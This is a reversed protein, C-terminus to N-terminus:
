APGGRPARPLPRRAGARRRRRARELVLADHPGGRQLGRRAASALDPGERDRAFARLAAARVVAPDRRRPAARVADRGARGRARAAERARRTRRPPGRLARRGRLRPAAPPPPRR